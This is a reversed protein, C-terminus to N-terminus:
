TQQLSQAAALVEDVHGPVRVKRWSHAIRGDPGILFTSREIGRVTRGYMNKDKIVDYAQCLTENVDAILPMSLGERERFREHSALTDRSVGIVEAGAARFAPLAASFDRSESTCGPTSDKPYFYLVLSQGRLDSLSLPGTTSPAERFDPAARGADADVPHAKPAAKAPKSAAKPRPTANDQTM